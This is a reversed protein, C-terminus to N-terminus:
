RRKEIKNRRLNNWAICAALAALTSFDVYAAFFIKLTEEEGGRGGRREEEGEEQKDTQQM